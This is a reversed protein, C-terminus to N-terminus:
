RRWPIAQAEFVTRAEEEALYRIETRQAGKWDDQPSPRWFAEL